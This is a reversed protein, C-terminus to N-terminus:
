MMIYRTRGIGLFIALGGNESPRNRRRRYQCLAITLIHKKQKFKDFFTWDENGIGMLNLFLGNESKKQWSFFLGRSLRKKSV